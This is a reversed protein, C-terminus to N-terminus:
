AARDRHRAGARLAGGGGAAPLGDPPLGQPRAAAGGGRQNGGLRQPGADAVPRGGAGADGAGAVRARAHAFVVRALAACVVLMLVGSYTMYHTLAGQPRQGLNDYHLMAYQVIGYAASAAGVAIVVDVVSGARRGRALTYVAPVLAFLVLQKSDAISAEPNISFAASM